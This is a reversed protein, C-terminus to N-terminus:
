GRAIDLKAGVVTHTQRGQGEDEFTIQKLVDDQHDDLFKLLGRAVAAFLLRRDDTGADPPPAGKVAQWEQSFARQMAEILDSPVLSV